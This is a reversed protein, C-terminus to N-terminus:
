VQKSCKGKDFTYAKCGSKCKPRVVVTFEDYQLFVVSDVGASDKSVLM